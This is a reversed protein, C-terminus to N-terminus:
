VGAIFWQRKKKEETTLSDKAGITDVVNVAVMKVMSDNFLNLAAPEVPQQVSNTQALLLLQLCCFFCCCIIRMMLKRINLVPFPYLHFFRPLYTAAKYM